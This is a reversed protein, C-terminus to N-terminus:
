KKAYKSELIASVKSELIYTQTQNDVQLGVGKLWSKGKTILVASRTFAREDDPVVTLEPTIATLAEEEASAARYITVNGYLDIQESDKSVHGREATLTVPPKNVHLYILNPKIIDTSDDDPYHRTDAAKLTYQLQGTEDLKRLTSDTVIYDPDHRHKGDHRPEPLETAYRLWFTLGTLAFFITLPFLASGWHKM